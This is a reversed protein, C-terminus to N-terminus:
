FNLMLLNKKQTNRRHKKKNMNENEKSKTQNIECM